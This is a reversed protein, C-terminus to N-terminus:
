SLGGLEDNLVGCLCVSVHRVLVRMSAQLLAIECAMKSLFRRVARRCIAHQLFIFSVALSRWVSEGAVQRGALPDSGRCGFM